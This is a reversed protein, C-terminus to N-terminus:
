QIAFPVRYAWPAEMDLVGRFVGSVITQGLFAVLATMITKRYGLRDTLYGSFYLGMLSGVTSGNNLGSQWAASVQYSGDPQMVGYTRQFAPQAFLSSMIHYDYGDMIATCSIVISWAVAKPYLRIAQPITLQHERETADEVEAVLEQRSLPSKTGPPAEMLHSQM